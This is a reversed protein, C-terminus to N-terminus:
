VVANEVWCVAYRILAHLSKLKLKRQMQTAQARTDRLSLRLQRAIEPHSRGRGLLELIELESDTLQDIARNAAPVGPKAAPKAASKLVAESLYCHGGLVDRIAHIIEAPGEQKMIYGDGGARLVRAAYLAEDHMSVILLKVPQKLSRLQKVLELGSRGPLTIDVLALDPQLRLIEQLAPEYDGAEGCVTLGDQQNVLQKMGERFVPHDDVIFVRRPAGAAESALSKGAPKLQAAKM